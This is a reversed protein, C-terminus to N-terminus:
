GEATWKYFVTNGAAWTTGDSSHIHVTFGTTSEGYAKIAVPGKVTNGGSGLTTASAADGGYSVMVIPTTSFATNFTVAASINSAASGFTMVGWGIERRAGTVTTNTGNNQRKVVTTGSLETATVKTEAM